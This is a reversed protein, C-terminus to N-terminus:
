EGGEVLIISIKYAESDDHNIGQEYGNKFATIQELNYDQHPILTMYEIYGKGGVQKQLVQIAYKM